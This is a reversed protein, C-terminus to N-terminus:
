QRRLAPRPLARAPRLRHPPPEVLAAPLRHAAAGAPRRRPRCRGAEARARSWSDPYTAPDLRGGAGWAADPLLAVPLLAAVLLAAATLARTRAALSRWATGPWSPSSRHASASCGAATACSEWAPCPSASGASRM